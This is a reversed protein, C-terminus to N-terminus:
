RCKLNMAALNGVAIVGENEAKESMVLDNMLDVFQEGTPLHTVEASTSLEVRVEVNSLEAPLEEAPIDTLLEAPQVDIAFWKEVFQLEDALLYEYVPLEVSLGEFLKEEFNLDMWQTM